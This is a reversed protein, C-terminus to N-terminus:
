NKHGDPTKRHMKPVEKRLLSCYKVRMFPMFTGADPAVLARFNICDRTEMRVPSLIAEPRAVCEPADYNRQAAAM